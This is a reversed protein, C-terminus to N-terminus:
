SRSPSSNVPAQPASQPTQQELSRQGEDRLSNLNKKIEEVAMRSKETESKAQALKADFSAEEALAAATDYNKSEVAREASRLKDQASTIELPAYQHAGAATASDIASKSIAFQETPIPKSACGSLAPLVLAAFLAPLLSLKAIPLVHHSFHRKNYNRTQSILPKM